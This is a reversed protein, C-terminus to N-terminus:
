VPDGIVNGYLSVIPGWIDDGTGPVPVPPAPEDGGTPEALATNGAVISNKLIGM